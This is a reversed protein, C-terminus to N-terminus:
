NGEELHDAPHGSYQFQISSSSSTCRITIKTGVILNYVFKHHRAVWAFMKLPNPLFRPEGFSNNVKSIKIVQEQFYYLNTYEVIRTAKTTTAATKMAEGEDSDARIALFVRGFLLGLNSTM